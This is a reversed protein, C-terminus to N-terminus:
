LELLEHLAHFLAIQREVVRQLGVLAADREVAVALGRELLGFQAHAQEAIRELRFFGFGEILGSGPARQRAQASRTSAVSSARSGRSSSAGRRRCAAMRWATSPPPLRM